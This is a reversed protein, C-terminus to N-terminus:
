WCRQRFDGPTKKCCRCDLLLYFSELGLSPVGIFLLAIGM